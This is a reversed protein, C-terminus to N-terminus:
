LLEVNQAWLFPSKQYQMRDMEQSWSAPATHKLIYSFPLIISLINPHFIFNHSGFFCTFIIQGQGLQNVKMAYKVKKRFLLM